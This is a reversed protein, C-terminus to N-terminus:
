PPRKLVSCLSLLNQTGGALARAGTVPGGPLGREDMWAALADPDVLDTGTDSGGREIGGGPEGGTDRRTDDAKEDATEDGPRTM